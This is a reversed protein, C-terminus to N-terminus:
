GALRPPHRRASQVGRDRQASVPRLGQGLSVRAKEHRGAAGNQASRRGSGSVHRDRKGVEYPRNPPLHTKGRPPFPGALDSGRRLARM